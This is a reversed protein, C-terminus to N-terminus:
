LTLGKRLRITRRAKGGYEVKVALSAFPARNLVV